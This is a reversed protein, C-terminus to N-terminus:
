ALAKILDHMTQYPSDARVIVAGIGGPMFTVQMPSAILQELGQQAVRPWPLAIQRTIEASVLPALEALSAATLALPTLKPLPKRRKYEIILQVGADIRFSRAAYLPFRDHAQRLARGQPPDPRAYAVPLHKTLLLAPLNPDPHARGV